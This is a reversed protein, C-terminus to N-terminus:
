ELQNVGTFWEKMVKDVTKSYDEVDEISTMDTLGLV